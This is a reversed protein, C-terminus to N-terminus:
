LKSLIKLLTDVDCGADHSKKPLQSYYYHYLEDLRPMKYKFCPNRRIPLKCINRTFQGTCIIKDNDLLQNIKKTIKKFKLRHCENLLIHVDFLANHAIIYDCNYIAEALGKEKLIKSLKVGDKKAMEYTVGHFKSNEIKSFDKPKRIFTKIEDSNINKKNFNEKYYWAIQVLRSSDYKSNDRYDHYQDRGTTFGETRAPLGTTEVDYVLINKGNIDM